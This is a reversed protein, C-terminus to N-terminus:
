PRRVGGMLVGSEVGKRDKDIIGTHGTAWGEQQCHPCDQPSHGASAHVCVWTSLYHTPGIGATGSSVEDHLRAGELWRGSPVQLTECVVFVNEVYVYMCMYMCVYM